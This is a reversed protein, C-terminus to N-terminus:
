RVDSGLMCPEDAARVSTHALTHATRHCPQTPKPRRRYACYDSATWELSEPDLHHAADCASGVVAIRASRRLPLVGRENKLLVVSEAAVRRALTRHADSTATVGYLYPECDCGSTCVSEDLARATLMGELLHTVMAVEVAASDALTGLHSPTYYGDNGPMSVDVGARVSASM